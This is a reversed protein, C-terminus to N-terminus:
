GLDHMKGRLVCISKRCVDRMYDNYGEDHYMKNKAAYNLLRQYHQLAQVIFTKDDVASLTKCVYFYIDFYAKKEEENQFSSDPNTLEEEIQYTNLFFFYYKVIQLILGKEQSTLPGGIHDDFQLNRNKNLDNMHMNDILTNCKTCIFIDKLILACKLAMERQYSLYQKHTIHALPASMCNLMQRCNQIYQEYSNTFFNFYFYSESSNLLIDLHLTTENHLSFYTLTKKKYKKVKKFLFQVQDFNHCLYHAHECHGICTSQEEQGGHPTRLPPPHWQECEQDGRGKSFGTYVKKMKDTALKAYESHGFNCVEFQMHPLNVKEFQFMQLFEAAHDKDLHINVWPTADGNPLATAETATTITVPEEEAVAASSSTFPRAGAREAEALVQSFIEGVLGDVKKIKGQLFTSCSMQENAGPLVHQSRRGVDGEMEEEEQGLEFNFNNSHVIQERIFEYAINSDGVLSFVDRLRKSPFKEGCSYHTPEENPMTKVDSTSVPITRELYSAVGLDDEEQDIVNDRICIKNKYFDDRSCLKGGEGCGRATNKKKGENGKKGELPNSGMHHTNNRGGCGQLLSRITGKVKDMRGYVECAKAYTDDDDGGGAGGRKNAYRLYNHKLYIIYIELLNRYAMYKYRQSLKKKKKKKEGKFHHFLKSVDKTMCLSFLVLYEYISLFHVDLFLYICENISEFLSTTTEMIKNLKNEIQTDIRKEGGEEADVCRPDGYFHCDEQTLEETLYVLEGHPPTTENPNGGAIPEERTILPMSRCKQRVEEIDSRLLFSHLDISKMALFTSATIFNFELFVQNIHQIINIMDQFSNYKKKEGKEANAGKEAGAAKGQNACQLFLFSHTLFFLCSYADGERKCNLGVMKCVRSLLRAVSVDFRLYVKGDVCVYHVIAKDKFHPFSILLLFLSVHLHNKEGEDSILHMHYFCLALYMLPLHFAWRENGASPCGGSGSVRSSSVGRQEAKDARVPEDRGERMGRLLLSICMYFGEMLDQCLQAFNCKKDVQSADNGEETTLEEPLKEERLDNIGGLPSWGDPQCLLEERKFNEGHKSQTLTQKIKHINEEIIKKKKREQKLEAGRKAEESKALIKNVLLIFHILYNSVLDNTKIEQLRKLQRLKERLLDEEVDGWLISNM